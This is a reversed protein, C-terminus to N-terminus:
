SLGLEELTPTPAHQRLHDALSWDKDGPRKIRLDRWANRSTNDAIRRALESPSYERGDFVIKQHKVWARYKRGKYLMEIETGNPMFVNAWRYGLAPPGFEKHHDHEDDLAAEQAHEESWIAADGYTRELFSEISHEIMAIASKTTRGRGLRLVMENYLRAPVPVAIVDSESM